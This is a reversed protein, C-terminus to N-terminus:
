AAAARSSPTSSGRQGGRHRLGVDRAGRALDRVARHLDEAADREGLLVLRVAVQAPDDDALLLEAVGGVVLSREAAPERGRAAGPLSRPSVRMSAGFPKLSGVAWRRSRIAVPASGSTTPGSSASTSCSARQSSQSTASIEPPM